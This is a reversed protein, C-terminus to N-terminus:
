AIIKDVKLSSLDLGSKLITKGSPFLGSITWHGSLTSLCERATGDESSNVGDKDIIIDMKATILRLFIAMRKM